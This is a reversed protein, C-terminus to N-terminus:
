TRHPISLPARELDCVWVHGNVMLSSLAFRKSQVDDKRHSYYNDGGVFYTVWADKELISLAVGIKLSGEPFSTGHIM